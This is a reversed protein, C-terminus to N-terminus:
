IMYILNYKILKKFYKYFCGDDFGSYIVNKTDGVLISELSKLNIKLKLRVCKNIWVNNNYHVISM